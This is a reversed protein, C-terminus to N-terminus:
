ILIKTIANSESLIFNSETEYQYIINELDMIKQDVNLPDFVEAKNNERYTKSITEIDDANTKLNNAKGFNIELIKNLEGEMQLNQRETMNIVSERNRKMKELLNRYLNTLQKREIVEAVTLEEGNLKVFTKANSLIIASKLRKRREILDNISQYNGKVILTLDQTDLTTKNKKSLFHVFESTDIKKQIRDDLLKLEALARTITIEEM